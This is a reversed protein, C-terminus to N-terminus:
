SAIIMSSLQKAPTLTCADAHRRFAPVVPGGACAPGGHSCAGWGLSQSHRAVRFGGPREPVFRDWQGKGRTRQVKPPNAERDWRHRLVGGHRGCANQGARLPARRKISVDGQSNVSALATTSLAGGLTRGLCLLLQLFVVEISPTKQTDVVPDPASSLRRRFVVVPSLM